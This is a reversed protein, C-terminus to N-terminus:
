PGPSKQQARQQALLLQRQAPAFGPRTRLVARFHTCAEDYREQQILTVGLGMHAEVDTPHAALASEFEACAAAPDDLRAWARARDTHWKAIEAGRPSTPWGGWTALAIWAVGVLASGRQARVRLRRIVEFVGGAALVMLFPVIPLRYRGAIFFPWVSLFYTVVLVCLLVVVEHRRRITRDDDDHASENRQRTFLLFALGVVAAGLVAGFHVPLPSLVVSQTREVRLVKNHAIEWAGWFMILKRGCLQAFELPNGAIWALAEHTFHRSVASSTLERGQSRELSAVLAPYDFCTRFTGVGPIEDTIGGDAQPNNGIYLNIGANSTILVFEGSVYYNRFTAPALAAVMGCLLGGGVFVIRRLEGRRTAVWGAWILIAPALLLANPRVLAALGLLLGGLAARTLSLRETWTAVILVLGWLLPILLVPAHLETEFYILVWYTGALALWCLAVAGGFWRRSFAFGLGLALMGLVSQVIRLVLPSSGFVRYCGALFYPYGPPRLFPTGRVQPDEYPRPPTWDGTALGRAWYDHFQADVGPARFDPAHSFEVVYAIRLVLAVVFLGVLALPM